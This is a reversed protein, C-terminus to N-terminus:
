IAGTGPLNAARGGAPDIIPKMPVGAKWLDNLYPLHYVGRGGFLHARGAFIEWERSSISFHSRRTGLRKAPYVQLITGLSSRLRNEMLTGRMAPRVPRQALCAYVSIGPPRIGPM